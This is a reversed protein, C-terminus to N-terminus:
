LSVDDHTVLYTMTHHAIVDDVDPCTAVIWVAPLQGIWYLVDSHLIDSHWCHLDMLQLVISCNQLDDPDVQESEIQCLARVFEALVTM